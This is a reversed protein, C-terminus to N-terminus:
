TKIAKIAKIAKITKLKYEGRLKESAILSCTVKFSRMTGM